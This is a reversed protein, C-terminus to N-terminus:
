LAVTLRASSKSRSSPALLTFETGHVKPDELFTAHNQGSLVLSFYGHTEQSNFNPRSDEGIREVCLGLGQYARM